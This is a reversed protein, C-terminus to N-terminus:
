AGGGGRTQVLQVFAANQVQVNVPQDDAALAGHELLQHPLRQVASEEKARQPRAIAGCLVVAVAFTFIVVVTVAVVLALPAATNARGTRDILAAIIRSVHEAAAAAVIRCGTEIRQQLAHFLVASLRVHACHIRLLLRLLLPLKMLAIPSAGGSIILGHVAVAVPVGASRITGNSWCELKLRLRIAAFAQLLAALTQQVALARM